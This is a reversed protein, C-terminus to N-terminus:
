SAINAQVNDLPGRHAGAAMVLTERNGGVLSCFEFLVFFSM